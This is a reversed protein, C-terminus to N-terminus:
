TSYINLLQSLYNKWKNLISRSDELLEGNEYKVLNTKPQYGKKFENIGREIDSINKKNSHTTLNKIKNKLYGRRQEQFIRKWEM